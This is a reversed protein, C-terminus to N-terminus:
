TKPNINLERFASVIPTVSLWKKLFTGIELLGTDDWMSNSVLAQAVLDEM